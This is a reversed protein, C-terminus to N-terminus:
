EEGEWCEGSDDRRAQDCADRWGMMYVLVGAAFLVGAVCVMVVAAYGLIAEM